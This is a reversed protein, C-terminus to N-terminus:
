HLIRMLQDWAGDRRSTDGMQESVSHIESWLLASSLPDACHRLGRELVRCAADVDERAWSGRRLPACHLRSMALWAFVDGPTEECWADVFRAAERRRGLRLLAMAHLRRHESREAAFWRSLPGLLTATVELLCEVWAAPLPEGNASPLEVVMALQGVFAEVFTEVSESTAAVQPYTPGDAATVLAVLGRFADMWRHRGPGGALVLGEESAVWGREIDEELRALAAREEATWSREPVAGRRRQGGAAAFVGPLRHSVIVRAGTRRRRAAKKKRAM